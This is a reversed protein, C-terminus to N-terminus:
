LAMLKEVTLETLSHVVVDAPCKKGNEALGVCAMGAKKAGIMGSVGDEIVICDKPDVGLRKAALLFIDPAPKGNQVEQASAIAQFLGGINLAGLVREIFGLRSSSAVALPIGNTHLARILEVSGVIQDITHKPSNMEKWYVDVAQAIDAPIGHEKFLTEYMVSDKVGAFRDTIQQPTMHIGYSSLINSEVTAHITQTDSIVGDMDFIVAKAM